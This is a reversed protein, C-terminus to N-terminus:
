ATESPDNSQAIMQALRNIIELPPYSPDTVLQKGRAVVEPRVEPTNSLADHLAQSNSNSLRDSSASSNQQPAPASKQSADALADTRNFGLYNSTPQIM